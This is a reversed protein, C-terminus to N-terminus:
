SGTERREAAPRQTERVMNPEALDDRFQLAKGLSVFLKQGALNQLLMRAISCFKMFVSPREFVVDRDHRLPCLSIERSQESHCVSAMFDGSSAGSFCTASSVLAFGSRRATRFGGADTISVELIDFPLRSASSSASADRSGSSSRPLKALLRKM